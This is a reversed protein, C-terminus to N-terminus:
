SSAIVGAARLKALLSNFDTVLAPVTSAVSDAQAAQQAPVVLPSGNTGFLSLEEVDQDPNISAKATVVAQTITRESM